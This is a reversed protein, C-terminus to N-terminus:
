FTLFLMIDTLKHKISLFDPETTDQILHFSDISVNIKTLINKEEM